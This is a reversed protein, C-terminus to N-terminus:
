QGAPYGFLAGFFCGGQYTSVINASITAFRAASTTGGQTPALLGFERKFAVTAISTGIFASDYGIMAGPTPRDEIKRLGVM